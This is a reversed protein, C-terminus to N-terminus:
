VQRLASNWGGLSREPDISNFFDFISRGWFDRSHQNKALEQRQPAGYRRYSLGHDNKQSAVLDRVGGNVFRMLPELFNRGGGGFSKKL